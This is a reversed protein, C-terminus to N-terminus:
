ENNIWKNLELLRFTLEYINNNLINQDSWQIQNISIYNLFDENNIIENYKEIYLDAVGEDGRQAYAIYAQERPISIYHVNPLLPNYLNDKFEIRIYPLGLLTYEIDRYCFEGPHDFPTKYKDLDLYYSLGIKSNVIKNLYQEHTQIIIPQLFGKREIIRIAKRYSDVGSGLWFMKDNFKQTFLRKNRYTKVDFEMYPLFIWPSIKHMAKIAHDRNMWYYLNHWNFHALLTKSCLNSKAIHCAYSNFYESFSLLKLEGTISNEIVNEVDSIPPNTKFNDDIPQILRIRGAFTNGDTNYNRTDIQFFNSLYCDFNKFFPLHSRGWKENEFRHIIIKTKM